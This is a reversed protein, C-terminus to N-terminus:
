APAAMGDGVAADESPFFSMFDALRTIEFIHRYHESLGVVHVAIEASRAQGLMGVILAIGTSNIYDVAEFNLVITRPAHESAQSYANGMGAAARGDLDGWLDIVAHEGRERIETRFDSM